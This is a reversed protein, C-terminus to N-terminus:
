EGLGQDSVIYALLRLADFEDFGGDVLACYVEHLAVAAEVLPSLDGDEEESDEEIDPDEDM